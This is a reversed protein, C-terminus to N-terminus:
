SGKGPKNAAKLLAKVQRQTTRLLEVVAPAEDTFRARECASLTAVVEDALKRNVGRDTVATALRDLLIARGKVGVAAEIALFLARECRGVAAKPESKAFRKADALAQKALEAPDSGKAIRKSRSREAARRGAITLLALGPALLLSPLFWRQDALWFSRRSHLEMAARPQFRESLRQARAEEQREEAKGTVDVHGLSASAVKYRHATPSYYPHVLDGLEIRGPKNLQVIYTFTKSGSLRSSADSKMEVEVAPELWESGKQEPTDLNAPLKGTGRLTAVVSVAGGVEVRRPRVEAQLEFDGVDGLQYGPPRQERPPEIVQVRLPKSSRTIGIPNARSAYGRGHFAMEMPGITLEGAKLPFLAIERVKIALYERGDIEVAYPRENLSNGTLAHAYFDPHRAEKASGEGFMGRAGYAYIRLTVQQGVVARDPTVTARLFAVNDPASSIQYEPPAPPQPQVQRQGFLEDFLSGSRGFGPMLDDDDFPLGRRRRPAQPLTGKPVVRLKVVDGSVTQGDVKFTGPGIDFTGTKTPVLVWTATTGVTSQMRGNIISISRQSGVSPGNIVFSSPVRLRPNDPAEEAASAELRVRVQQGVEVEAASLQTTVRADAAISWSTLILLLLVLIRAPRLKASM